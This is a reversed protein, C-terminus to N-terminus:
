QESPLYEHSKPMTARSTFSPSSHMYPQLGSGVWSALAPDARIVPLDDLRRSRGGQFPESHSGEQSLLEQCRDMAVDKTSYYFISLPNCLDCACLDCM